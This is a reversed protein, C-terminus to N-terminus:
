DTLSECIVKGGAVLKQEEDVEGGRKGAVGNNQAPAACGVAADAALAPAYVCDRNVIDSIVTFYGARGVYRLRVVRVLAPCHDVVGRWVVVPSQPRTVQEGDEPENKGTPVVVTV